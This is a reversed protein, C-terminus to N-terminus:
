LLFGHLWERQITSWTSSARHGRRQLAPVAGGAWSCSTPPTSSGAPTTGGLSGLSLAADRSLPDFLSLDRGSYTGSDGSGEQCRSATGGTRTGM